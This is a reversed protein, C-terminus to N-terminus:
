LLILDPDELVQKLHDLYEAAPAGNILRHDFSLSLKFMPRIVMESDIAVPKEKIQGVGLISSAPYNIIPSFDDVSYSGLNTVTINSGSLQHKELKRERAQNVLNLKEKNIEKLGAQAINKLVPVMLEGEVDVALGVNKEESYVIEEDKLHSNILPFEELSNAVVKLILDTISIKTDDLKKNLKEILNLAKKANVETNLTVHPIEQWSQNVREAGAKKVGSLKQRDAEVEIDEEVAKRSAAFSIVDEKEIRGDIKSAIEELAIGKEEAVKEATPTAKVKMEQAYEIVDAEIIRGGPGTGIDVLEELEINNDRAARRAAPSAKVKELYRKEDGEEKVEKDAKVSTEAADKQEKADEEAAESDVGLEQLFEEPNEDKEGIVGIIETVPVMDGVEYLKKLFVGSAPAEVEMNAKDTLVEFLTEGEEVKEGEKIHWNSIEGEEMTTGLKPMIVETAM